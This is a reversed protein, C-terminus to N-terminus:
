KESIILKEDFETPVQQLEQVSIKFIAAYKELVRSNLRKFVRPKYHRRVRWRALEIYCSLLSVDMQNKAAHYALPSLRGNIVESHVKRTEEIILSWAQDNVINKVDWGASKSMTYNGDQKVAYCVEGGHEETIMGRDQPVEEVKM